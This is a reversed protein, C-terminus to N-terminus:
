SFFVGVVAFGLLYIRVLLPMAVGCSQTGRARWVSMLLQGEDCLASGSRCKVSPCIGLWSKMRASGLPQLSSSLDPGSEFSEWFTDTNM